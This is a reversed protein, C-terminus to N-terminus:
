SFIWDPYTKRKAYAKNKYKFTEISKCDPTDEVISFKIKKNKIEVISIGAHTDYYNTMSETYIEKDNFVIGNEYVYVKRWNKVLDFISYILYVILALSTSLVMLSNEEFHYSSILSLYIITSIFIEILTNFPIKKNELKGIHYLKGFQIDFKKKKKKNRYVSYIILLGFTIFKIM